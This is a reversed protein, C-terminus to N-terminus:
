NNYNFIDLLQTYDQMNWLWTYVRYYKLCMEVERVGKKWLLSSSDAEPDISIRVNIELEIM